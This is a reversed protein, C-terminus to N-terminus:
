LKELFIKYDNEKTIRSIVPAENLDCKIMLCPSSKSDPSLFNDQSNEAEIIDIVELDRVMIQGDILLVNESITYGAPETLGGTSYQIDDQDGPNSGTINGSLNNANIGEFGPNVLSSYDREEKQTSVISIRNGAKIADVLPEPYSISIAILIEGKSLKDLKSSGAASVNFINETIPDGPQRQVVAIRGIVDEQDTKYGEPLSGVYYQLVTIDGPGIKQGKEINTRAAIISIKEFYNNLLFYTGIGLIMAGIVALIIYKKGSLSM